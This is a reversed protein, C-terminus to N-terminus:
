SSGGSQLALAQEVVARVAAPDIRIDANYDDEGAVVEGHIVGYPHGNLAAYSWWLDLDHARGGMLTVLPTGTPSFVCNTFGAGASGVLIEASRFLGAQEAFSLDELLVSEFGLPRLAAMIEAENVLRRSPAKARSIFLRRRKPPTAGAEAFFERLFRFRWPGPQETRITDGLFLEDFVLHAEATREILKSAPIGARELVVRQFAAPTRPMFVHDFERVDFGARRALDLRPVADHMFHFFNTGELLFLTRGRVREPKGLRLRHFIYHEEPAASLYSSIVAIMRDDPAIFTFPTCVVRAQPIAYAQVPSSTFRQTATVYDGPKAGITAFPPPLSVAEAPVLNEFRRVGLATAAPSAAFDSIRRHFGKPPGLVRSSVPLAALCRGAWRRARWTRWRLESRLTPKAPQSTM